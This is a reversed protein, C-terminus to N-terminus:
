WEVRLMLQVQRATENLPLLGPFGTPAAKRGFQAYGFGTAGSDGLLSDPNGLNAHNLFNFADARIHLLGGEGLWKLRIARDLSVDINMLGPGSLSNRGLNGNGSAPEGFAARNLLSEGGSVANRQYIAAPNVLEARRNAIGRIQNASYVTFPFGTRFSALTAVRWERAIQKWGGSGRPAPLDGIASFVLNQRQDFDSNGRDGRSDQQLTFAAPAEYAQGSTLRVFALDFFDGALPSSQNDISHSWTYAAQAQVRRGRYRALMQLGAYDSSGQNARYLIVPLNPNDAFGRNLTDTTLLRRGLTGTGNMEVTLAGRSQQVGLFFSQVSANRLGADVWTINPFGTNGPNLGYTSLQAPALYNTSDAAIDFNALVSNNLRTNAWLNDFPRDYFIGYGGRLLLTGKGSLDYSGGLRVAWDRNDRRYIQESGSAPTRLSGGAIRASLTAGTGPQFLADASGTNTPAGFNEYRVGYNFVLRGTARVTDQAYFQFQTYRYNRQYDPQRLAPLASRDLLTSFGSPSATAFDVATEFLYRGDRGATLAGDLGRLLIGGGFQLLHRGRAWVVGDSFEGTRGRNRYAYFALSGPLLTQDAMLLTPIEPHPRKWQLEDSSLSAHAENTLTPSLSSTVSGALGYTNDTLPANFGAYPSWIFDPRELRAESLRASIRHRGGPVAYDLRELGLWRNVFNPLEVDVLGSFSSSQPAPGPHAALLTRTYAVGPTFTNSLSALYSYFGSSLLPVSVPDGYGRSRLYEVSASVFLRNRQVPGGVQFGPQNEHLGPRALGQLNRQLDNANWASNKAYFYGLGHWRNGGAKTVANALVGATRGYEASFNNTSIRYEQVAEPAVSNLPGSVLYNNNEAGDLLFNSATPRQGSVALGLGRSNATGAAVGPQLILTTYVDRGALPLERVQEPDVVLSISAELAGRNARPATFSASRSVDMDPGYFTLITESEPLFVSRYQGAQWVDSLPRLRFQLDLRGAVPVTLQHVEAAQYLPAEVRLRYTGPSLLPLVFYGATGSRGEVAAGGGAITRVVAGAVARGSQSDVIRGSILGQTTQALGLGACALMWAIVWGLTETATRM